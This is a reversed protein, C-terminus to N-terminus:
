CNNILHWDLYIHWIQQKTTTHFAKSFKRCGLLFVAGDNKESPVSYAGGERNVYYKEDFIANKTGEFEVLFNILGLRIFFFPADLTFTQGGDLKLSALGSSSSNLLTSPLFPMEELSNTLDDSTPNILIVVPIPKVKLNMLCDQPSGCDAKLKSIDRQKSKQIPKMKVPLSLIHERFSLFANYIKKNNRCHPMVSIGLGRFLIGICFNYLWQGYDIDLLISQSLTHDDKCSLGAQQSAQFIPSFFEKRFENEGNQSFREECISCFMWYTIEGASKMSLKGKLEHLFIRHEGESIFSNAIEKLVSRPYIHSRKLSTKRRCLLCRSCADLKNAERIFDIMAWDLLKSGDDDLFNHDNATGLLLISEKMEALCENMLKPFEHVPDITSKMSLFPLLKDQSCCYLAKGKLLKASNM